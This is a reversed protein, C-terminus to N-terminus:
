GSTDKYPHYPPRPLASIDAFPKYSPEDPGSQKAYPEYPLEPLESEKAFPKYLPESPLPKVPDEEVSTPRQGSMQPELSKSARTASDNVM